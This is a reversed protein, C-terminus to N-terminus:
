CRCTLFRESLQVAWGSGCKVDGRQLRFAAQLAARAGALNLSPALTSGRLTSIWCSSVGTASNLDQQFLNLPPDRHAPVVAPTTPFPPVEGTGLLRQGLTAVMVNM